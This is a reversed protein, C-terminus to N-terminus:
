TNFTVTVKSNALKVEQAEGFYSSPQLKRLAMTASDDAATPAAKISLTDIVPQPHAKAYAISDTRKQAFYTKENYQNYSIYGVLLLALLVFGIVQNRDM